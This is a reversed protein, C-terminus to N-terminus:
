TYMALARDVSLTRLGRSARHLSAHRSASQPRLRPQRRRRVADRRCRRYARAREDNRKRREGLRMEYMGGDGAWLADFQPQMSLYIDMRACADIQEPTALEFHEIFHRCGRPSPKGALVREWMRLSQEIAADGIAHVGAAIGLAEAQAYYALLEDDSFRLTGSTTATPTRSSCRRRGAASPGTSFYTAASTPFASNRALAADPECIKPHVKAPLARLAEVEEAYEDRAFGVLQAHLHLAGRSLALDVARREAARRTDRASDAVLFAAQARWNAEHFLKGTPGSTADREIGPTDPPLDLWALTSCQNVLCSHGDIRTLM